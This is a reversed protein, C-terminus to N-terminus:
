NIQVSGGKIRNVGSSRSVLYKGRILVKGAATLTISSEGCCLVIERDATIRIHDGNTTAKVSRNTSRGVLTEVATRRPGWMLGIVIPRRPNGQDFLLAVERGVHSRNLPVTDHAIVDAGTRNPLFDVLPSGNADFGTLFGVVVGEIKAAETESEAVVLEVLDHNEEDPAAANLRRDSSEATPSVDEPEFENSISKAEM